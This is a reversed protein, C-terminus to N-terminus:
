IIYYFFLHFSLSFLLFMFVLFVSLVLSFVFFCKSCIVSLDFYLVPCVYLAFLCISSFFPSVYLAFSLVFSVVTSVCLAFFVSLLFFIFPLFLVFFNIMNTTQNNPMQIICINQNYAPLYRGLTEIIGDQPRM